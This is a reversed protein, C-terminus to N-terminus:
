QLTPNIKGHLGLLTWKSKSEIKVNAKLESLIKDTNDYKSEQLM